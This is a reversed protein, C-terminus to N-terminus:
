PAPFWEDTRGALRYGILGVWEHAATDLRALGASLKLFPRGAEKWGSTRWDIPYAEVPFNAARFVGIARPMHYASTVLLWREGPKPKVVDRTFIANEYTNRSRDERVIRDAAVGLNELLVRGVEAETSLPHFVNANGGSLVIKANPFRRALEAAATMREASSNIEPSGRVATLDPNIAGGLVIIGDPARGNEHWAPFRESLTLLLVNGLPSYGCVLLLLIGAAGIRVGARSWRTLLLVVGILCITAVLNSPTILFGFAKSALYLM